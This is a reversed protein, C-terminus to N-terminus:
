RPRRGASRPCAPARGRGRCRPRATRPRRRHQDALEIEEGGADRGRHDRQQRDEEAVGADAEGEARDGVILEGGEGDPQPQRPDPCGDPGRGTEDRQDGAQEPARPEAHLERQREHHELRQRHQHEAAEIRDEAGDDAPEQDAGAFLEGLDIDAVKKPPPM